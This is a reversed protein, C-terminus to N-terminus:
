DPERAKLIAWVMLGMLLAFITLLALHNWGPAAAGTHYLIVIATSILLILTVLAIAFLLWFGADRTSGM